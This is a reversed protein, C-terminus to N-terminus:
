NNFKNNDNENVLFGPKTITKGGVKVYSLKIYSEAQSRTSTLGSTVLSQDLRLKVM